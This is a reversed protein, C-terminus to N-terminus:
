DVPIVATHSLNKRSTPEHTFTKKGRFGFKIFGEGYFGLTHDLWFRSDAFFLHLLMRKSYSYLQMSRGLFLEEVGEKHHKAHELLSVGGSGSLFEEM